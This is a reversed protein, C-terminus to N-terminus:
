SNHYMTFFFTFKQSNFGLTLLSVFLTSFKLDLPPGEETQFNKYRYALGVIAVFFYYTVM